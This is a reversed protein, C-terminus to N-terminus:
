VTEYKIKKIIQNIDTKQMLLFYAGIDIKKKKGVTDGPDLFQYM